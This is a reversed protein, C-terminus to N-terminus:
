AGIKQQTLDQLKSIDAKTLKDLKRHLIYKATHQEDTLDQIKDLLKSHVQIYDKISLHWVTISKFRKTYENLCSSYYLIFDHFNDKDKWWKWCNPHYRNYEKNQNTWLVDHAHGIDSLIQWGERVNVKKIAYDPLLIANIIPDKHVVYFQM